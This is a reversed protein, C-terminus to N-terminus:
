RPASSSANRDLERQLGAIDNENRDIDAKLGSMRDLYKQHNRAEGGMKDGEGNNYERALEERRQLAKRLESELIQRADVDRARQESPDVRQNTGNASRASPATFTQSKVVTVNGGTVLKCNNKQGPPVTNTYENGCRYIKDQAFVLQSAVFLMASLTILISRKMEDGCEGM